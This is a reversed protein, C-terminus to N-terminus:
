SEDDAEWVCDDGLWWSHINPSKACVGEENHFLTDGDENMGVASVWDFGSWGPGCNRGSINPRGTQTAAKYRLKM